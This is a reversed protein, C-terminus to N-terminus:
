LKTLFDVFLKFCQPCQEAIYKYNATRFIAPADITDVYKKGYKIFISEVIRKPPNSHNQDEVPMQWTIEISQTGLYSELSKKSALILSELDYKFCFVHFRTILRADDQLGKSKLSKDFLEFIGNKMDDFTEHVFGKNRPYLDPITIVISNRKNRLIDVAKIPVKALLSKKRDGGPAEFFQIRIGKQQIEALLPYLLTEMALIDSRGEVYIIVEDIKM